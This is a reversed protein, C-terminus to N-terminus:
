DSAFAAGALGALLVPVAFAGLVVLEGALDEVGPWWEYGGGRSRAYLVLAVAVSAVGAAAFAAPRGRAAGALVAILASLAGGAFAGVLAGLLYAFADGVAATSTVGEPDSANQLRLGLEAIGLVLATSVM